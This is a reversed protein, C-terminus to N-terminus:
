RPAVASPCPWVLELWGKGDSSSEDVAVGAGRLASDQETDIVPGDSMVTMTGGGSLSFLRLTLGNGAWGDSALSDLYDGLAEAVQGPPQCRVDLTLRVRTGRARARELLHLVRRGLEGADPGVGSVDRLFAALEGTKRRLEPDHPDAQGDAILALPACAADTARKLLALEEHQTVYTLVRRQRATDRRTAAADYAAVMRLVRRRIWLCAVAGIAITVADPWLLTASGAPEVLVRGGIQCAYALLIWWWRADILALLVFSALAATTGWWTWALPGTAQPLLLVVPLGVAAALLSAFPAPRFRNWSLWTSTGLGLVFVLWAAIAGLGPVVAVTLVSRVGTESLLAGLGLLMMLRRDATFLQTGAATEPPQKPLELTVVTGGGERPEVSARIGAMASRRLISQRLGGSESAPGSLGSGRDFLQLRVSDPWSEIRLEAETVGSHKVVNLLAEGMAASSAELVEDAVRGDPTVSGAITLNLGLAAARAGAAAVPDRAMVDNAAADILELDQRCRERLQDIRNAPVGRSVASLTNIVTDHLLRTARFHEAQALSAIEQRTVAAEASAFMADLHRGAVRAVGAAAAGAVGLGLTAVSWAVASRWGGAVQDVALVWGWALLSGTVVVAVWSLSRRLSSMGLGAVLAAADFWVSAIPFTEAGCTVLLVPVATALTVTVLLIPERPRLLATVAWALLVALGLLRVLPQSAVVAPLLGGLWLAAAALAVVLQGARVRATDAGEHAFSTLRHMVSGRSGAAVGAQPYTM